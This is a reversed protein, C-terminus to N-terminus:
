KRRANNVRDWNPNAISDAEDYWVVRGTWVGNAGHNRTRAFDEALTEAYVRDTIPRNRIDLDMRTVTQGTTSVALIKYPM